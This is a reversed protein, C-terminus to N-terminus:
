SMNFAFLLISTVFICVFICLKRLYIRLPATEITRHLKNDDVSRQLRHRHWMQMIFYASLLIFDSYDAHTKFLNEFVQCGLMLTLLDDNLLQNLANFTVVDFNTQSTHWFNNRLHVQIAHSCEFTSHLLTDNTFNGFNSCHEETMKQSVIKAM